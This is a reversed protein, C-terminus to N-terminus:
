HEGDMSFHAFKKLDCEKILKPLTEIPLICNELAENKSHLSVLFYLVKYKRLLMKIFVKIDVSILVIKLPVRRRIGGKGCRQFQEKSGLDASSERGSINAAKINKKKM